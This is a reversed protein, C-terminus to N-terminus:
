ICIQYIQYSWKNCELGICRSSRKFLCSYFWHLEMSSMWSLKSKVMTRSKRAWNFTQGQKENLRTVSFSKALKKSAWSRHMSTFACSCSESWHRGRVAIKTAWKQWPREQEPFLVIHTQRCIATKIILITIFGMLMQIHPTAYQCLWKDYEQLFFYLRIHELSIGLYTGVPITHYVREATNGGWFSSSFWLHRWTPLLSPDWIQQDNIPFWQFDQMIEGQRTSTRGEEDLWPVVNPMPFAAGSPWGSPMSLGDAPFIMMPIQPHLICIM